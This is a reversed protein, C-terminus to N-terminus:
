RLEDLSIGEIFKKVIAARSYQQTLKDYNGKLQEITMKPILSIKQTLQEYSAYYCEPIDRLVELSGENKMCFVMRGNFVAEIYTMGFSQNSSFDIVVDHIRYAKKVDTAVNCYHIIDDLKLDEVQDLFDDLYDGTGYVDLIINDINHNKLYRAYNILNEIDAARERSIRLLTVAKILPNLMNKQEEACSPLMIEEREVCRKSDLSNGLVCYTEYTDFGNKKLQIRNTETVFVANQLHLPKLKEIIGPYLENICTSSTHFFYVKNNIFKSSADNLFLHLSERTSIVTKAHIHKMWFTMGIGSIPRLNDLSPDFKLYSYAKESKILHRKIRQLLRNKYYNDITYISAGAPMQGFKRRKLMFMRVNYGKELLGEALANTASVTGGTGSFDYGLFALTNRQINWLSQYIKEIYKGEAVGDRDNLQPSRSKFFPNVFFRSETLQEILDEAQDISASVLEDLSCYIKRKKLYYKRDPQYLIVPKELFTFDFGLSSYDTILVDNNVIEDMVDIKQSSVIKIQTNKDITERLRSTLQETIMQHLCLTLTNGKKLYENLKPNSIVKYLNNIFRKTERNDGFYERWTIFWLIKNGTHSPQRKWRRVLEMYRPHYIGNLLQYEKFGNIKKLEESIKPNYYLFRFLCNNAYSSKYELCKIALTGHQLYILPQTPEPQYNKFLIKDPQVDRYSLTVFLMDAWFYMRVHKASNRWIIYKKESESLCAYVKKTNNNKDMVFYADLDDHCSIIYKWFYFSNNNATQGVNEGFLWIYRVNKRQVDM